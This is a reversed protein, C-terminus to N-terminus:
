QLIYIVFTNYVRYYMLFYTYELKLPLFNLKLIIRLLPIPFFEGILVFLAISLLKRYMTQIKPLSFIEFLIWLKLLKDARKDFCMVTVARTNNNTINNYNKYNCSFNVKLQKMFILREMLKFFTQLRHM